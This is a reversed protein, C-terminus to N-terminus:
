VYTADVSCSSKFSYVTTKYKNQDLKQRLFLSDDYRQRSHSNNKLQIGKRKKPISIM